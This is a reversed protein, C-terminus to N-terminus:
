LKLLPVIMTDEIILEPRPIQNKIEGELFPDYPNARLSEIDDPNVGTAKAWMRMMTPSYYKLAWSDTRFLHNCFQNFFISPHECEMYYLMELSECGTEKDANPRRRTLPEKLPIQKLPREGAWYSLLGETTCTKGGHFSGLQDFVYGSHFRKDPKPGCANRVVICNPGYGRSIAGRLTKQVCDDIAYGTFVLEFFNQSDIWNAFDSLEFADSGCKVFVPDHEQRYPILTPHFSDDDDAFFDPIKNDKGSYAIWVVQDGNRRAAQVIQSTNRVSDHMYKGSFRRFYKNQWDIILM